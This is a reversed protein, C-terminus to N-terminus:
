EQFSSSLGEDGELVVWNRNWQSVSLIQDRGSPWAIELSGDLQGLADPLGFHIARDSTSAYSGGGYIHRVWTNEGCKLRVTTGIADRNSEVGILRLSLYRGKTLTTNRVLALDANVRTMGFDMRGDGDLDATALGRGAQPQSFFGDAFKALAFSKGGVNELVQPRQL